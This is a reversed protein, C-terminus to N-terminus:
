TQVHGANARRAGIASALVVAMAGALAALFSGAGRDLWLDVRANAAPDHDPYGPPVWDVLWLWWSTASCFMAVLCLAIAGYGWRQLRLLDSTSFRVILATAAALGGGIPLPAGFLDSGDEDSHVLYASLLAILGLLVVRGWRPGIRLAM